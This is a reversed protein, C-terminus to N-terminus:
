IHILSLNGVAIVFAGSRVLLIKEENELKLKEVRELFKMFIRGKM